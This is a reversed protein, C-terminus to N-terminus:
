RYSSKLELIETILLAMSLSMRRATLTKCELIETILLGKSLSMMTATLAKCLIDELFSFLKHFRKRRNM